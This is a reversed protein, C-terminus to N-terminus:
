GKLPLSLSIWLAVISQTVHTERKFTKCAHSHVHSSTIPIPVTENWYQISFVPSTNESAGLRAYVHSLEANIMSIWIITGLGNELTWLFILSTEGLFVISHISLGAWLFHSRDYHLTQTKINWNSLHRFANINCTNIYNRPRKQNTTFCPLTPHPRLVLSYDHMTWKKSRQHWEM